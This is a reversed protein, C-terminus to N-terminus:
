MCTFSSCSCVLADCVCRLPESVCRHFVCFYSAMAHGTRAVEAEHGEALIRKLMWGLLLSHAHAAALEYVLARGRRSRALEAAWRPPAATFVTALADLSFSQVVQRALFHFEDHRM